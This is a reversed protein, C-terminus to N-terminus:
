EQITRYSTRKCNITDIVFDWFCKLDFTSFLCDFAFSFMDSYFDNLQNIGDLNTKLRGTGIQECLFNEKIKLPEPPSPLYLKNALPIFHKIKIPKKATRNPRDSQLHKQDSLDFRVTEVSLAILGYILATFLWDYELM